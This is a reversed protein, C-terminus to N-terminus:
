WAEDGAARGQGTQCTPMESQQNAHITTLRSATPQLESVSGGFGSGTALSVGAAAEALAAFPAGLAEPCGAAAARGDAV